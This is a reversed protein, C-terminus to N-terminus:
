PRGLIVPLSQGTWDRFAERQAPTAKPQPVIRTIRQPSEEVILQCRKVRGRDTVLIEAIDGIRQDGLRKTIESATATRWGNVALIEQNYALGAKAAPSGPVVNLISPSEGPFSLGTYVRARAVTESDKTEDQSLLEWPALKALKLGYAKEILGADLEAVGAIYHRWFLDPDEGCLTQYANRLDADTIPGDGFTTWLLRFYDELGNKGATALRLKADVMWAVLSGKEYYSVTSNTSFETPKYFRIWADFSSEELSQEHRGNRTTNDTWTAALKRSVWPWPVVGAKMALGYQIFSTFGEHFWLLKTPNEKTYDFPGLESARLRKVNWAHFFEHAILTFLDYYGEPRDLAFPDALLSTSDRHELGGRAGPSFTLLFVYRDFPFGGFMRGCVDVIRQTGELIRTEDGCHEGTIAFEFATKGCWWEHRRFTGLEFPSDVLEDHNRAQFVGGHSPLGTAVQWGKPWGEFRVDCPRGQQGELYLFSASGVLHAHSADAHNTRVTLDNCYLRYTLTGGAKLAPIRWRQKDLKEIPLVKGKPDRLVVRDLFRAYDRVLYSGPTWTPLAAMAGEAVADAPLSLNVEVEHLPLDLPRVTIRLAAPKSIKQARRAPM